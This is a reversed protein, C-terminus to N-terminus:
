PNARSVKGSFYMYMYTGFSSSEERVSRFLTFAALTQPQPFGAVASWYWVSYCSSLCQVETEVFWRIQQVEIYGHIYSIYM